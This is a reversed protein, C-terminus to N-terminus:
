SAQKESKNQIGRGLLAGGGLLIAKMVFIVGLGTVNSIAAFMLPIIVQALRNGALRISLVEATRDKPSFDYTLMITLPQIMGLGTGIITVVILIYAISEFAPLVGYALAGIAMFMTLLRIIGMRHILTTLFLRTVVSALAQTTLVLGIASPSMGISSAYLPYYVNFIDLASLVLMSIIISQKLGPIFLLDAIKVKEQQGKGKKKGEESPTKKKVFLGTLFLCLSFTAFLLYTFQFGLKETSYGGILPGLMLGLSTFLTLTAIAKNRQEKPVGRAIGNQVSVLAILQGGGLLLHSLYFITISPFLFPGLMGLGMGISGIILPLKEGIRDIVRGSFIALFLPAFSYCATIIGIEFINAGLHEVFLSTMPRVAAVPTTIFLVALLFLYYQKM